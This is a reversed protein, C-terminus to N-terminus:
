HLHSCLVLVAKLPVSICDIAVCFIYTGEGVIEIEDVMWNDLSYGSHRLQRWRLKLVSGAGPVPISVKVLRKDNSYYAINSNSGWLVLWPLLAGTADTEEIELVVGEGTDVKECSPTAQGGLRHYFSVTGGAPMYLFDTSVMRVQGSASDFSLASTDVSDCM